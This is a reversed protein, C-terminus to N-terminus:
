PQPASGDDPPPATDDPPTVNFQQGAGNTAADQAQKGAEELADKLERRNMEIGHGTFTDTASDYTIDDKTNLTGDEGPAILAFHDDGVLSYEVTNGWLDQVGSILQQAEDKNPYAGNETKYQEIQVAANNLRSATEVSKVATGVFLVGMVIAYGATALWITGLLSLIAGALAMGRPAKFLGLLSFLLGIPSLLGCTIVGLISVVFGAVGM